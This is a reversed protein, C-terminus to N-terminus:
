TRDQKINGTSVIHQTAIGHHKKHLHCRALLENMSRKVPTEHLMTLPESDMFIPFLYPSPPNAVQQSDTKMLIKFWGMPPLLQSGHMVTTTTTTKTKITLQLRVMEHSLIDLLISNKYTSSGSNRRKIQLTLPCLVQTAKHLCVIGIKNTTKMKLILCTSPM